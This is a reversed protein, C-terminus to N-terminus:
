HKVDKCSKKEFEIYNSESAHQLIFVTPGSFGPKRTRPFGEECKRLDGCANVIRWSLFWFAGSFNRKLIKPDRVRILRSIERAVKCGALRHNVFTKRTNDKLNYFSASIFQKLQKNLGSTSLNNDGTRKWTTYILPMNIPCRTNCVLIPFDKIVAFKFVSFLQQLQM